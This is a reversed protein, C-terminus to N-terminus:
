LSPFCERWPEWRLNGKFFTAVRQRDLVDLLGQVHAPDPQYTRPGNSAAGVIAWNLAGPYEAVIEAWPQSLPEFSCGRVIAHEKLKLMTKLGTRIMAEKQAPTNETIQGDARRMFDPPSSFLLWMNPPYPTFRLLRKPNKTLLILILEPNIEYLQRAQGIIHNIWEDKVGKAMWDTMSGVFAKFPGKIGFLDKMREPHWYYWNFGQGYHIKAQSKEATTEAYCVAISGDPMRWRCGHECGALPNLTAGQRETGNPLFTKTWEIGGVAKGNILKGQKNM